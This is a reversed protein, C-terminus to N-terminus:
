AGRRRWPQILFLVAVLAAALTWILRLWRFPIHLLETREHGGWGEVMLWGSGIAMCLFVIAALAAAIHALRGAAAPSLRDTLIHVAAHSRALTAVIIAGSAALVVASQVIEISGLFAFGTHRGLVALSDILTAILLGAGGVLFAARALPGQPPPPRDAVPNPKGM